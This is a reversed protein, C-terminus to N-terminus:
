VDDAFVADLYRRSQFFHGGDLDRADARKVAFHQRAVSYRLRDSQIRFPCTIRGFLVGDDHCVSGNVAIGFFGRFAQSCFEAFRSDGVYANVVNRFRVKGIYNGVTELFAVDNQSGYGIVRANEGGHVVQDPFYRAM